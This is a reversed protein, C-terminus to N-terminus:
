ARPPAPNPAHAVHTQRFGRADRSNLVCRRLSSTAGVGRLDLLSPRLAQAGEFTRVSRLLGGAWTYSPPHAVTTTLTQLFPLIASIRTKIKPRCLTEISEIVGRTTANLSRQGYKYIHPTSAWKGVVSFSTAGGTPRGTPWHRWAGVVRSPHSLLLPSVRIFRVRFCFGGFNSKLM